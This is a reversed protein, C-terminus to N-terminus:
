EVMTAIEPLYRIIFIYSLLLLIFITAILIMNSRRVQKRRFGEAARSKRKFGSSIRSKMAEIEDEEGLLRLEKLRAEREEKDPDWYRPIYEYRRHKPLKFFRFIAM